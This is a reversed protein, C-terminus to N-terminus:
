YRTINKSACAASIAAAAAAAASASPSFRVLIYIRSASNGCTQTMYRKAHIATSYHGFKGVDIRAGDYILLHQQRTAVHDSLRKLSRNMYDKEIPNKIKNFVRNFVAQSSGRLRNGQYFVASSVM